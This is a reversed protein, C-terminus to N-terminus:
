WRRSRRRASTTSGCDAPALSRGGGAAAVSARYDVTLGAESPDVSRRTGDGTVVILSRSRPELADRLRDEAAKPKLGGIAVGEVTTGRPVRDSALAFLVGYAVVFLVAFGLLVRFLPRLVRRDKSPPAVAAPDAEDTIM